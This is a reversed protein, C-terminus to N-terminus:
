GGRGQAWSVRRAKAGTQQSVELLGAGDAKQGPSGGPDLARSNYRSGRRRRSWWVVGGEPCPMSRGSPIGGPAEAPEAPELLVQLETETCLTRLAIFHAGRVFHMM